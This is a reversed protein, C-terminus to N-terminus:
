DEKKHSHPVDDGEHGYRVIPGTFANLDVVVKGDNQMFAGVQVAKCHEYNKSAIAVTEEDRGEKTDAEFQVAYLRVLFSPSLDIFSKVMGHFAQVAQTADATHSILTEDDPFEQEVIFGNAETVNM